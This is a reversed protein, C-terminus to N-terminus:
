NNNFTVSPLGGKHTMAIVGVSVILTIGQILDKIFNPAGISIAGNQIITLFLAAVITGQISYQGPRLFTGGLMTAAMASMLADAGLTPSVSKVQSSAIIGDFGSILSCLLYCCIVILKANIGVNKCATPSDGVANVYRGFKTHDMLIILLISILIFILAPMPIVGGLRTQGLFTYSKPWHKSYMYQNQTIIKIFGNIFTTMAITGIFSPVGIKVVFFSNLVGVVLSALLGIFIALILSRPEKSDLFKGVVAAAITAEAGVALNMEGTAMVLTMGLAMLGVVSTTRIIDMINNLTFFKPQLIEFVVAIVLTIILLFYKPITRLFSEKKIQDNQKNM